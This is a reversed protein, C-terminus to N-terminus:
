QRFSKTTIQCLENTDEEKIFGYAKDKLVAIDAEVLVGNESNLKTTHITMTYYYPEKVQKWSRNLYIIYETNEQGESELTQTASMSYGALAIAEEVSASAKIAEAMSESQIVAKSIDKAKCELSNASLFLQLVFVSIITFIGISIIIELMPMGSSRSKM